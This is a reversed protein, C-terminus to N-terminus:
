QNRHSFIINSNNTWSATQKLNTNQHLFSSPNYFSTTLPKSHGYTQNIIQMQRELNENETRHYNLNRGGVVDGWKGIVIGRTLANLRIHDAKGRFVISLENKKRQRDLVTLQIREFDNYIETRDM